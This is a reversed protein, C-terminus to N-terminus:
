KSVLNTRRRWTDKKNDPRLQSNAVKLHVFSTAIKELSRGGIYGGVGLSLLNWLGIPVEHWRPKFIVPKQTFLDIAPLLLGYILLFGIIVYMLIPRWSRTLLSGSSLEQMLIVRQAKIVQEEHAIAKTQIEAKLKAKLAPDPILKDIISFVPGEILSLLPGLLGLSLM